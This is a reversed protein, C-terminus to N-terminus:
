PANVLDDDPDSPIFPQIDKPTIEIIDALYSIDTILRLTLITDLVVKWPLQMQPTSM